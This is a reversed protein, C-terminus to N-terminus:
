PPDAPTEVLGVELALGRLEDKDTQVRVRIKSPDDFQIPSYILILQASQVRSGRDKSDSEDKNPPIAANLQDEDINIEQLVEDNRLVRVTMSNIPDDAPALIKVLLCLKPIIVPFAPVLMNGGYVGILSLKGNVEQRIDDCFVTQVQRAIM